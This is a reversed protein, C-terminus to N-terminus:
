APSSSSVSLRGRAVVSPLALGELHLVNFLHAKRVLLGVVQVDRRFHLLNGGDEAQFPSQADRFDSVAETPVPALMERRGVDIIVAKLALGLGLTPYVVDLAKVGIAQTGPAKGM